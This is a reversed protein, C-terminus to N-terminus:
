TLFNMEILSEIKPNVLFPSRSPKSEGLEPYLHISTKSIGRRSHLPILLEAVLNEIPLRVVTTM